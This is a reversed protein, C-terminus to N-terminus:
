IRVSDLDLDFFVDAVNDNNHNESKTSINYGIFAVKQTNALNFSWLNWVMIDVHGDEDRLYFNFGYFSLYEYIYV